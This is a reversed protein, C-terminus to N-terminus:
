LAKEYEGHVHTYGLKEFLTGEPRNVHAHQRLITVGSARLDEEMCRILRLGISGRRAEPILYLAHQGAELQGKHWFSRHVAACCYGILTGEHRVTYCRLVGLVDGQQYLTEDPDFTKGVHPMEDWHRQMLPRAEDWAHALSERQITVAIATMTMM